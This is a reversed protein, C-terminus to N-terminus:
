GRDANDPKLLGMRERVLWDRWRVPLLKAMLEILVADRGVLIYEKPRSSKIVGKTIRVLEEVQMGHKGAHAYFKGARSQMKGYMDRSEAPMFRLIEGAMRSSKEWIPTQVSGVILVSIKINWPALELRLGDAMAVLAAKSVGYPSNFPSVLRGAVSSVFIVRGIGKRLLPLCAQTLALQGIVNVDLQHKFNEISIFEMSGGISIGANNILCYLEGGTKVCVDRCAATITEPLTVDLLLPILRDSSQSRIAEADDPKRVGAFVQYGQRDLELSLARGIGSSAGSILIAKSM